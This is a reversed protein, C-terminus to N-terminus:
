EESDAIVEDRLKAFRRLERIAGRAEPSLDVELIDRQKEIRYNVYEQLLDMLGVDNVLPLMRRALQKTIM